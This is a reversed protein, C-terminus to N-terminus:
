RRRRADTLWKWAFFVPWIATAFTLELLALLKTQRYVAGELTFTGAILSLGIVLYLLVWTGWDSM